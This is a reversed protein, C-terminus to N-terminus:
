RYRLWATARCDRGASLRIWRAQFAAPFTHEFRGGPPVTAALYEMWYGQGGPDAEIVFRVEGPADHSLELLRDGYFGILYPDSPAGAQVSTNNWPGGVGAPKGLKWLDDIAGAWVRAKGDASTFIHPNGDAEGGIGTIVLLGRYSAYDHIAFAHSAVPRIKAFGDANEAPLEYFTGHAHVLDRETAVERCVRLLNNQHLRDFTGPGKPLRWRRGKDDVVLVSASDITIM